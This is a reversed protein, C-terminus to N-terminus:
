RLSEIKKALKKDISPSRVLGGSFFCEKTTKTTKDQFTHIVEVEIGLQGIEDQCYDLTIGKAKYELEVLADLIGQAKAQFPSLFSLGVFILISTIFFYFPILLKQFKM